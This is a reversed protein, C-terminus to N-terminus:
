SMQLYLKASTSSGLTGDAQKMVNDLVSATSEHPEASNVNVPSPETQSASAQAAAPSPGNEVVFRGKEEGGSSCAALVLLLVVTGFHKITGDCFM